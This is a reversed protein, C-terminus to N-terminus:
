ALTEERDFGIVLNAWLLLRLTAEGGLESLQDRARRMLAESDADFGTLVDHSLRERIVAPVRERLREVLSCRRRM